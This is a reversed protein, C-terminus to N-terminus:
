KQYLTIFNGCTDDFVAQWGEGVQVPESKFEVGLGKLREYEAQLDTVFFVTASIGDEYISKQFAAAAPHANPELLLEVGDVGAPSTVTLWQYEGVPIDEKKEFGLVETYFRLASDQDEVLISTIQIRIQTARVM